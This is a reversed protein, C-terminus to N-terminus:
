PHRTLVGENLWMTSKKARHISEKRISWSMWFEYLWLHDSKGNFSGGEFCNWISKRVPAEVPNL